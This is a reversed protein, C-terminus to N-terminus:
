YDESVTGLAVNYHYYQNALGDINQIGSAKGIHQVLSDKATYFPIQRTRSALTFEKNYADIIKVCPVPVLMDPDDQVTQDMRRTAYSIAQTECECFFRRFDKLIDSSYVVAQQGWAYIDVVLPATGRTRRTVDEEEEEEEKSTGRQMGFAALRAKITEANAVRKMRSDRWPAGTSTLLKSVSGDEQVQMMQSDGIYLSLAFEPGTKAIVEAVQSRFLTDFDEALVVDDEMVILHRTSTELPLIDLANKMTFWQQVYKSAPNMKIHIARLSDDNTDDNTTDNTTDNAAVKVNKINISISRRTTEIIAAMTTIQQPSFVATTLGRLEPCDARLEELEEGDTGSFSLYIRASSRARHMISRVTRCTYQEGERKAVLVAVDYASTEDEEEEQEKKMVNMTMDTATTTKTNSEAAAAASRDCANADGGFAHQRQKVDVDMTQAHVPLIYWRIDYVCVYALGVRVLSM